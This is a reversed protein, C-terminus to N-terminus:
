RLARSEEEEIDVGRGGSISLEIRSRVDKSRFKVSVKIRPSKL